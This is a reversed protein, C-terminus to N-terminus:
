EAPLLTRGVRVGFHIERRSSSYRLRNASRLDRANFYFSGGRAVRDSCKENTWASGDAPAGNYNNHYCDQVWEFTNGSMEYVGNANAPFSGVPATQKGAWPTGCGDCNANGEGIEEGWPYATTTGARVAHEWEAETLLRYPKGTYRSLWTVYEQADEWSVGIVPRRGRGWSLDSPKISCGGLTFCADWEEFTVNFRSVAYPREIMVKHQPGEHDVRYKENEPSGMIFEGSPVVVMEPCTFCEKFINKPKLAHEASATLVKPWLLEALVIVRLKLYSFNRWGSYSLTAITVVITLAACIIVKPHRHPSLNQAALQIEM